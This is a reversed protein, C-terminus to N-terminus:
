KKTMVVYMKKIATKLAKAMPLEMSAHGGDQVIVLESGPWNKYLEYANSVKCITDYRGHVIISLEQLM